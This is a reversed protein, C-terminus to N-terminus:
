SRDSDNMQLRETSRFYAETQGIIRSPFIRCARTGYEIQGDVEKTAKLRVPHKGANYLELMLRIPKSGKGHGPHLFGESLQGVGARALQTTNRIAVEFRESVGVEEFTWGMVVEGPQLIYEDFQKAEHYGEGVSWGDEPDIVIGPRNTKQVRFDEKFHLYYCPGKLFEESFPKLIIEELDIMTTFLKDNLRGPPISEILRGKEFDNLKSM